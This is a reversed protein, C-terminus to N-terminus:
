LVPRRVMRAAKQCPHNASVNTDLQNASHRSMFSQVHIGRAQGSRIKMQQFPTAASFQSEAEQAIAPKLKVIMRETQPGTAAGTTQAHAMSAMAAALLVLVKAFSATKYLYRSNLSVNRLYVTSTRFYM